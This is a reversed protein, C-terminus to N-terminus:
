DRHSNLNKSPNTKPRFVTHAADSRLYNEVFLCVKRQGLLAIAHEVNKISYRLGLDASNVHKVLDDALDPMQQISDAIAKVSSNEASLISVIESEQRDLQSDRNM